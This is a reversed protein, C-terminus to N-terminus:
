FIQQCISNLMDINVCSLLMSMLNPAEFIQFGQLYINLNDLRSLIDQLRKFNTEILEFWLHM